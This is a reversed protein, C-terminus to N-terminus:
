ENSLKAVLKNIATTLMTLQTLVQQFLSTQQIIFNNLLTDQNAAPAESPGKTAESYTKGPRTAETPTPLPFKPLTQSHPATNEQTARVNPTKKLKKRREIIDKYM